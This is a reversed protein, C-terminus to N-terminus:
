VSTQPIFHVTSREEEAWDGLGPSGRSSGMRRLYMWKMMTMMMMTMMMM